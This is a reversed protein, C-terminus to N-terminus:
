KALRREFILALFRKLKESILGEVESTMGEEIRGGMLGIVLM